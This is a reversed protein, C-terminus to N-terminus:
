MEFNVRSFEALTPVCKKPQDFLFFFDFSNDTYSHIGERSRRGKGGGRGRGGNVEMGRLSIFTENYILCKSRVCRKAWSLIGKKNQAIIGKNRHRLFLCNQYHLGRAECYSPVVAAVKIVM